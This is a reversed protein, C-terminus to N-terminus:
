RGSAKKSPAPPASGTPSKRNSWHFSRAYIGGGRWPMVKIYLDRGVVPIPVVMEYGTKGPPHRLTVAKVPWGGELLAAIFEWAAAETFPLGHPFGECITAPNVITTPEWETPIDPEFAHTRLQPKRCARALQARLAPDITPIANAGM